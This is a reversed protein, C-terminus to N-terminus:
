NSLVTTDIIRVAGRDDIEATVEFHCSDQNSHASTTTATGSVLYRGTWGQIPQTTEIAIDVRVAGRARFYSYLQETVKTNVMAITDASDSSPQAVLPLTTFGLSLVLLTILM